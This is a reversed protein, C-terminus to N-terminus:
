CFRSVEAVAQYPRVTKLVAYIVSLLKRGVAVISHMKKKGAATRQQFYDRYAPVSRVAQIALMWVMRRVYPNGAHSMRPHELRFSGSQFTKPCWGLHSLFQKITPFRHIDQVESLIAALAQVGGVPFDKPDYPLQGFLEQIEEEVRELQANLSRISQALLELKLGLARQRRLLGVTTVASQLIAQAQTPGLRGRSHQSLFAGIEEVGAAVLAQPSPYTGLLALVTPSSFSALHSALEPFSLALNEQLRNLQRTRDQLLDARFRTLERLNELLPDALNLPKYSGVGLFAALSRADVRDTKAKKGQAQRFQSAQYPNLEVVQYGGELLFYSITLAYPGSAEVGVLVEEKSAQSELFALLGEFGPRDVSFSFVKSYTDAETDHVCAHHRAKGVDIGVHYHALGQEKRPQIQKLYDPIAGRRGGYVGPDPAEWFPAAKNSM